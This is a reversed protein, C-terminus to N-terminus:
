INCVFFTTFQVSIECMEEAEPPKTGLGRVLAKGRFWAPYSGDLSGHGPRAGVM